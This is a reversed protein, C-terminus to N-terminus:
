SNEHTYSSARASAIARYCACAKLKLQERESIQLMGRMKKIMGQEEFRSLMETIGARRWGLIESLDDHTVPLARGELADCALSLWCALRRELQHRAGCLAVQSTQVMLWQNYQLLHERIQPRDHMSCQLHDFGIAWADGPALVTLRQEARRAGFAISAPAFGDSCVMATQLVSGATLTTLSLIGTEVFYISDITKRPEQLVFRRPLVVRKLAPRICDFDSPSLARLIANKVFQGNRWQTLM